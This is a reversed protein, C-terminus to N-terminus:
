GQEFAFSLAMALIPFLSLEIDERAEFRDLDFPTAGKTAAREADFSRQVLTEVTAAIQFQHALLVPIELM